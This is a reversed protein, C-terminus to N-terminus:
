LIAGELHLLYAKLEVGGAYGVLQQDKGVVRHCPILIPLPNLHMVQGVARAARPKGVRRALSGYSLTTGYSVQTTALLVQRSFLPKVLALDFPVQFYVRQGRLYEQLQLRCHELVPHDDPAPQATESEILPSPSGISIQLLATEAAVLYVEGLRRDRFKL